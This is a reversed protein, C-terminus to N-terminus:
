EGNEHSIYIRPIQANLRTIIEYSITGSKHALERATMSEEGSEGIIVVEDGCAIHADIGLDVMIYDMCVNGAIPYRKGHILVSTKRSLAYPYGHSYGIPVVAIRTRAPTIYSRGYGIGRKESFEKILCVKSKVSLAYQLGISDKMSDCPYYGYLSIGPRVLNFHSRPFNIIGASNAAHVFPFVIGKLALEDILTKFLEVQRETYDFKKNDAVPFHTFIGEPNVHELQALELIEKYAGPYQFGWRGMGTDIKFHIKVKKGQRAAEANLSRVYHPDSVSLTLDHRVAEEYEYPLLAGLILTPVLIGEKRLREGEAFTSVGFYSVQDSLAHAVELMGHGYANAKIIAMAKVSADLSGTIKAFNSKIRDLNIEIWLNYTNM